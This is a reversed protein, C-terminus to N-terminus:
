FFCYWRNINYEHMAVLCMFAQLISSLEPFPSPRAPSLYLSLLVNPLTVCRKEQHQPLDTNVTGAAKTVELGRRRLWIMRPGSHVCSEEEEM